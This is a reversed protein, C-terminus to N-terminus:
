KGVKGQCVQVPLEEEAGQVSDSQPNLGKEGESAAVQANKLAM